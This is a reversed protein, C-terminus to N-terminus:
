DARHAMGVHPCRSSRASSAIFAEPFGCANERSFRAFGPLRESLDEDATEIFDTPCIVRIGADVASDFFQSAFTMHRYLRSSEEAQIVDWRREKIGAWVQNIGPRDFIEGSIEPERIIGGWGSADQYLRRRSAFRAEEPIAHSLLWQSSSAPDCRCTAAVIGLKFNETAKILGSQYALLLGALLRSM